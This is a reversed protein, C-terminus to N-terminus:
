GAFFKSIYGQIFIYVVVLPLVISVYYRLWKPFKIGKGANAEEIFNDWGWGMKSVCFLLYVLSGLPLVNNSVIFDELDLINSGAGLPQFGSLLNFGFVCPLSLLTVLVINVLVAKKQVLGM